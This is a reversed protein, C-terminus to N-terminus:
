AKVGQLQALMPFFSPFSVAVSDATHIHCPEPALTAFIAASMALRHDHEADYAFGKPLERDGFIILDDTSTIEVRKGAKSLLEATKALRDSEKVRLEELGKFRSVGEAMSAVVALIPIEDILTPLESAEIDTARLGQAEARPSECLYSKVPEMFRGASDSSDSPENVAEISVGMRRLVDVFGGRTPNDLVHEIKLRFGPVLACYAALFAASSPDGPVRWGSRLDETLKPQFPGELSVQEWRSGDVERYERRDVKAGLTKLIQETHDRSGAPLSISTKGDAFMAALLVSSKVQASAKAFHLNPCAKLRQGQIYLPLLCRNQETGLDDHKAWRRAAFKAGMQELLQTVRRMPRKSLSEDGILVVDLQPQAALLGALLRATTGSNGCDLPEDPSRWAAYGRSTIDITSQQTARQQTGSHQPTTQQAVSLDSPDSPDAHNLQAEVGLQRFIELTSLCDAGLLPNVVRMKGTQIAGFMVARHTLSKDPPCSLAMAESQTRQALNALQDRGLPTSTWRGAVPPNPISEESNAPTSFRTTASPQTATPTQM